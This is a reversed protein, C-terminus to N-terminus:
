IGGVNARVEKRVEVEQSYGVACALTQLQGAWNQGDLETKVIDLVARLRAIAPRQTATAKTDCVKQVALVYARFIDSGGIAFGLILARVFTAAPLLSASSLHKASPIGFFNIVTHRQAESAHNELM